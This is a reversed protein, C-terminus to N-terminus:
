EEEEDTAKRKKRPGGDDERKLGMMKASNGSLFARKEAKSFPSGDGTTPAFVVEPVAPKPAAKPEDIEDESDTVFPGDAGWGDDTHYEGEDDDSGSDREAGQASSEAPMSFGFMERGRAELAALMAAKDDDDNGNEDEGSSGSSSSMRRPPPAAIAKGKGKVKAM